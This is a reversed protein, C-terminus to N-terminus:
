RREDDKREKGANFDGRKIQMSLAARKAEGQGGRVIADSGFRDVVQDLASNIKKRKQLQEDNADFLALQEEGEGVVNTVGVGILRVPEELAGRVLLAAAERALVDGDDTPQALTVRRTLLPYGRPGPARRKGFRWKLVV